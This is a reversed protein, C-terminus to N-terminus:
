RKLFRSENKRIPPLLPLLLLLGVDREVVGFDGTMADVVAAAVAATGAGVAVVLQSM